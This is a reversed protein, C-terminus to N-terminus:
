VNPGIVTDFLVRVAVPLQDIVTPVPVTVSVPLTLPVNLPVGKVKLPVSVNVFYHTSDSWLKRAPPFFLRPSSARAQKSRSDAALAMDWRCGGHPLCYRPMGPARPIM